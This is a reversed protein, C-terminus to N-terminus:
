KKIKEDFVAAWYKSSLAKKHKFEKFKLSFDSNSVNEDKDVEICGIIIVLFLLFALARM